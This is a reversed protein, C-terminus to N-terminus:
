GACAVGTGRLDCYGGPNKHLYQQHYEEAFYFKTDLKIETTIKGMGSRNLELQYSDGSQRAIELQESTDLYLASRYQTGRDNGQRMGQSPDHNEWFVKLIDRIGINEKSYLIQVVETHATYGSCVEEYTPNETTGGAYGAATVWVGELQWFLREVGWFCGMGVRLSELKEPYPPVISRGNVAHVGSIPLIEQRGPLCSEPSVVESPKHSFM